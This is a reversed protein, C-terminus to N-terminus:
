SDLEKPIGSPLSAVESEEQEDHDDPVAIVIPQGSSEEEPEAHEETPENRVHDGPDHLGPREAAPAEIASSTRAIMRTGM